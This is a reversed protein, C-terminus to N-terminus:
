LNILMDSHGTKFYDNLVSKLLYPAKPIADITDGAIHPTLTINDLALLPDDAEIPEIWSVDLAAGAIRKNQLAEILDAKCVVGARATNIIYSGPKMKNFVEKNIMGETEPTLRMHLSLIDSQSIVEDLGQLKVHIGDKELVSQEVFPDHAIVKVGLSNLRKAVLKGIYGMGILGVTHNALITKFADNSFSKCWKGNKIEHHARAINRTEAYMLSITFDAVPEANRIVHVLTINKEKVSDLAIHELGGRCTGILKLRGAAELMKKSVPAIHVLLYDADQMAEVIGDPLDVYEPGNKEIQLIKEQFHQKELESFWEFTKIELESNDRGPFNIGKAADILTASSVLADGVIVLKM